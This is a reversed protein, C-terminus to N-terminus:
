RVVGIAAALVYGMRGQVRVQTWVPGVGLVAVEVGPNLTKLPELGKAPEAVM